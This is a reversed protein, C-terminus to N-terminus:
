DFIKGPNLINQPDFVRKIGRMLEIETESMVIHMFQKRKHGIGHEGSITGGLEYVVQYLSSLIQPERKEWEDESWSPNVKPHAHLNGDGAHGFCPIDLDFRKELERLRDLFEPIAAIPVVVDEISQLTSGKRLALPVRKRIKWFRESEEPTDAVYVATPDHERCLREITAADSRVEEAHVGDVEFLMMAGAERYPITENMQACTEVLSKHDIFEASTPVISGSTMISTVVEIASRSDRFLVAVTVRETPRPLLRIFIKTIVALTGESGTLLGIFNYGTVDKLRKGGFQLIEGTPLVAELGTIYRGTVGYKIARGGGANEAVNGGVFCFEESMPYGAFFLGKEMAVAELKNTVVGPEVVAILNKTDIELIENMRELSLCIGGFLPVAGGSLGSGAGRPTVPIRAQTALKLIESIEQATRPLVVVEPDRAYKKETVMDHSYKALVKTDGHLVHDTGCIAVLQKIVEVTVKSYEASM